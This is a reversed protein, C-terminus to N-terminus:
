LSALGRVVRFGTDSIGFWPSRNRRYASRLSQALDICSGGRVVRYTGSAPGTPNTADGTYAGYWDFCLEWVNGHMDFLGWANAPKQGVEHTTNGSNAVWWAYNTLNAEIDGFSYATQTGARCAYEWEAETPLRYGNANLNMQVGNWTTAEAGSATPVDGWEAPDTKGSITYVPTLGESISLKNCFVLADYWSVMEVPLQTSGTFFSPNEGMV